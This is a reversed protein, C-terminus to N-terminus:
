EASFIEPQRAVQVVDAHRLVAWFGPETDMRQWHVPDTRRLLTLAEHPVGKVFTDPSALDVLDSAAAM